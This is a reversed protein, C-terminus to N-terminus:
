GVISNCMRARTAGQVALGSVALTTQNLYSGAMTGSRRPHQCLRVDVRVQPLGLRSQRDCHGLTAILLLLRPWCFRTGVWLACM